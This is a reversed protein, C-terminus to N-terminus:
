KISVLEDDSFTLTVRSSNEQQKKGTKSYSYYDWRNTHFSDIILPSGLLSAVQNRTMGIQLQNISEDSLINGQHLDPTYTCGSLSILLLPVLILKNM